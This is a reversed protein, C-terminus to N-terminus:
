LQVRDSPRRKAANGDPNGPADVDDGPIQEDTGAVVRDVEVHSERAGESERKGKKVRVGREHDDAFEIHGPYPRPGESEEAVRDADRIKQISEVRQDSGTSSGAGVCSGDRCRGSRTADSGRDNRCNVGVVSRLGGCRHHCVHHPVLRCSCAVDRTVPRVGSDGSEAGHGEDGFRDSEWNRQSRM